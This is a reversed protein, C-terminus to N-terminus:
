FCNFDSILQPAARQATIHKNDMIPKYTAAEHSHPTVRSCPSCVSSLVAARGGDCWVHLQAKRKHSYLHKTLMMGRSSVRISIGNAIVHDCSSLLHKAKAPTMLTECGLCLICSAESLFGTGECRWHVNLIVRSSPARAKSHFCNVFVSALSFVDTQAELFFSKILEFFVPSNWNKWFLCKVCLSLALAITILTSSSSAPVRDM